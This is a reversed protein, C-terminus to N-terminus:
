KNETIKRRLLNRFSEVEGSNSFVRKPIANFMNRQRFIMFLNKTEMFHCFASWKIRGDEHPSVFHLHDEAIEVSLQKSVNPEQKWLRTVRLRHFLTVSLVCYAGLLIVIYSAAMGPVVLIGLIGVTIGLIGFVWYIYYRFLSTKIYARQGELYEDFTLQYEINKSFIESKSEM